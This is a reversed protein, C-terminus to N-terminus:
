NRTFPLNNVANELDVNWLRENGAESLHLNDSSWYTGLDDPNTSNFWKFRCDNIPLGFMEACERVISEKLAMAYNNSDGNANTPQLTVVIDAKPCEALCTSFIYKCAGYLQEKNESTISGLRDIGQTEDVTWWDNAGGMIHIFAVDELYYTVGDITKGNRYEELAEDLRLWFAWFGVTTGDESGAITSSGKGRNDPVLGHRECFATVYSSGMATYSDGLFLGVKDGYNKVETIIQEPYNKPYLRKGQYTLIGQRASVNDKDTFTAYETVGFGSTEGTGGLLDGVRNYLNAM